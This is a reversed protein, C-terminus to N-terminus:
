PLSQDGGHRRWAKKGGEAGYGRSERGSFHGRECLGKQKARVKNGRTIVSSQQGKRRSQRITVQTRHATRYTRPLIPTGDQGEQLLHQVIHPRVLGSNVLM